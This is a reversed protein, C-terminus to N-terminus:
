KDKRNISSCSFKKALSKFSEEGTPIVKNVSIWKFKLTRFESGLNGNSLCFITTEEPVFVDDVETLRQTLAFEFRDQKSESLTPHYQKIQFSVPWYGRHPDFVFQLGREREHVLIQNEDTRTISGTTRGGPQSFDMKSHILLLDEFAYYKGLGQECFALGSALPDFYMPNVEIGNEHVFLTGRGNGSFHKRDTKGSLRWEGGPHNPRPNKAAFVWHDELRSFEFYYNATTKDSVESLGKGVDLQQTETIEVQYAVISERSAAVKQCLERMSTPVRIAKPAPEDGTVRGNCVILLLAMWGFLHKTMM